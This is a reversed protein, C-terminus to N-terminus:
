AENRQMYYRNEQNMLEKSSGSSIIEGNKLEYVEDARQAINIDATTIIVCYNERSALNSLLEMFSETESLTLNDASEDALIINGPMSLARAIGTKLQELSSLSKPLKDAYESSLGVQDMLERAKEEAEERSIKSMEMPYMINELVTLFPFLFLGQCLLAARKRRYKNRNIKALDTGDICISGESPVILGSLLSLLTTKGSGPKGIVAYLRGNLFTCNIGHLAEEKKYKAPYSYHVDIVQLM